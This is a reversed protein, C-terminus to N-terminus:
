LRSIFTELAKRSREAFLQSREPKKLKGKRDPNKKLELPPFIGLNVNMPQFSEPAATALYRLLSGIATEEPWKPMERGNIAAHANLAAVLGSAVSETYGEVGTIQGALFFDDRVPKGESLPRMFRDLVRPACVFANEHMVGKRVFEANELAPIMRFVREQEPWKLNTQFGVMNYLTGEANDRRLQVAAYPTRGTSPDSLGVPRMPGFRLTDIGREAMVEVPLCGEFYRREKRGGDGRFVHSPSREAAALERQFAEYEARDMPCNIYDDDQGYRGARFARGMDISEAAIIPAAADFFSLCDEGVVRKIGEAIGGSMLPGAAIIAPGDPIEEVERRVLEIDVNESIEKTVMMSFIKRDVALAGGAPVRSREACSIILSGLMRLEDKLIGAPSTPRDAGLSNSCVLEALDGTSHAPAAKGPRMEFLRVRVGRVALQWAAESGALGGGVVTVSDRQANTM